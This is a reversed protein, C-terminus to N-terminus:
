YTFLQFEEINPLNSAAQINLRFRRAKVPAFKLELHAGITTGAVVPQWQRADNMAEITFKTISKWQIEKIVARAVTTPQGLDVELWGTHQGNAVAWRTKLDGDFARAPEYGPQHWVSSATAPKGQSVLVPPPPPMPVPGIIEIDKRRSVPQVELKVIKGARLECEVITNKPAHLKFHVDWDIQWGPLVLLRDGPTQLLMEQLGIMACGGHDMDPFGDFPYTVWFAPFRAVFLGCDGYRVTPYPMTPPYLFKELCYRQAEGALGLRAVAINGYKWCLSEKQMQPHSAGYRWTDLALEIDPLGVGYLGFPFIAYLQPFENPNAISKWSEALAIVRHGDKTATPIDPLRQRFSELWARDGARAALLASTLARLGAVADAHNKCGVGMECSNGPYIVLRGRDDLPKGTLKRCQQQYFQDYFKLVGMMVPLSENVDGGTFRHQQFMMYAFELASTYHYTLHPASHHGNTSTCVAQLGCHDVSEPFPTGEIGFYHRARAEQVPALRRYYDLGIRLLDFDGSKLMPWYVLRQNQGMFLIGWWARDDPDIGGRIIKEKPLPNDFSFLGGNFFTPWRGNRNCGLLYRFLQYNRGVQWGKDDAQARPNIIVHSRNWFERWWALTRERDPSARQLKEMEDRWAEQTDDQAVRLLVRLDLTTVPSATKLKRAKFPTRMYVGESEGDPVLGAAIIRGGLTLNKFPEPIQDAIAEAKQQAIRTRRVDRAPNHRHCWEVGDAVPQSRFRWSEYAVGVSRPTKSDLKLHVVPQFADVWLEIETGEGRIRICSRALDLEQRFQKGFPSPTLSLRVRGLKALQGSELFSDSSGLYFLLDDGEVWVNLGVNGGGLPMSGTADKSPTDWVVNYRSMRQTAAEKANPPTKQQAHLPPLTVLLLITLSILKTKM